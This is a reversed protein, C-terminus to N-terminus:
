PGSPLLTPIFSVTSQPSMPLGLLLQCTWRRKRKSMLRSEGCFRRQFAISSPLLAVVPDWFNRPIARRGVPSFACLTEVRKMKTAMRFTFVLAPHFTWRSQMSLSRPRDGFSLDRSMPEVMWKSRNPQDRSGPCLFALPNMSIANVKLFILNETLVMDHPALEVNPLTITRSAVKAFKDSSWETVTVKLDTGVQSWHWGVLNGTQPCRKPHATHAAGGIFDPLFQSPVNPVEVPLKGKPLMGDM